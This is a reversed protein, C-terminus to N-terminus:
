ISTLALVSSTTGLTSAGDTYLTGAGSITGGTWTTLGTVTVDGSGTLTGGSLTLTGTSVDTGFHVTGDSVTLSSVAFGPPYSAATTFNVADSTRDNPTVGLIWKGMQATAMENDAAGRLVIEAKEV